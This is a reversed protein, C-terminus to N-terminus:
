NRDGVFPLWGGHNRMPTQPEPPPNLPGQFLSPLGWNPGMASTAKIPAQSSAPQGSTLTAESDRVRESSQFNQSAQHLSLSVLGNDQGQVWQIQSNRGCLSMSDQSSEPEAFSLGARNAELRLDSAYHSSVVQEWISSSSFPRSFFNNGECLRSQDPSTSKRVTSTAVRMPLAKPMSDGHRMDNQGCIPARTARRMSRRPHGSSKAKISTKSFGQSTDSQCRSQFDLTECSLTKGSCGSVRADAALMQMWPGVRQSPGEQAWRLIRAFEAKCLGALESATLHRDLPENALILAELEEEIEDHREEPGLKLRRGRIAAVIGRLRARESGAFRRAWATWGSRRRANIFWLTCQSPFM